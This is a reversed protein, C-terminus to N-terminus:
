RNHPQRQIQRANNQSSGPQPEKPKPRTRRHGFPPRHDGVSHLYNEILPPNGGDGATRNQEGAQGKVQQAVAQAVNQLWLM